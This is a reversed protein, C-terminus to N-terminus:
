VALYAVVGAFAAFGVVTFLSAAKMDPGAEHAEAIIREIGATLLLGTVFALAVLETDVGADRLLVYALAAGVILPAAFSITQLLRQRAPLSRRRLTTVTALGDPVDALALGLAVALALEASLTACIGILLGECLLDISTAVYTMLAGAQGRLELPQRAKERESVSGGQLIDLLGDITTYLVGGVVFAFITVVPGTGGFARPALELAIIGLFLGASLHLLLSRLRPPITTLEALLAGGYTGAVPLLALAVVRLLDSM